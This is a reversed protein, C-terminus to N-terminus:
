PDSEAPQNPEGEGEDDYEQEADPSNTNFGTWTDPGTATELGAKLIGEWGPFYIRIDTFGYEQLAVLLDEAYDCSESTCYLVVPLGLLDMLRTVHADIEEAPVNLVPPDCHLLLHGQEYAERPRADIVVAGQDILDLMEELSVGVTQRLTQHLDKQAKLTTLDPVWPLNKARILGAGVAVAVVVLIRILSRRM